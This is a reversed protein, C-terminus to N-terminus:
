RRKVIPKSAPRGITALWPLVAAAILPWAWAAYATVLGSGLALAFVEGLLVLGRLLRTERAHKHLTMWARHDGAAIAESRLWTQEAVWWWGIQALGLRAAGVAAWVVAKVLYAPARLGHFRARHWSLGIHHRVTARASARQWREPIIPRREGPGAKPPDPQPEPPRGPPHVETPYLTVVEAGPHGDIPETSM